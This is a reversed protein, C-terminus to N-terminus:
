HTMMISSEGNRQCGEWFGTLPFAKKNRWRGPVFRPLGHIGIKKIRAVFTTPKIGRLDGAGGTGCIKLITEQLGLFPLMWKETERGNRKGM